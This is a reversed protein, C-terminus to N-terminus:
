LLKSDWIVLKTKFAVCMNKAKWCRREVKSKSHKSKTYCILFNKTRVYVFYRCLQFFLSKSLLCLLLASKPFRDFVKGWYSKSNYLMISKWWFWAIVVWLFSIKIGKLIKSICTGNLLYIESNESEGQFRIMEITSPVPLSNLHM